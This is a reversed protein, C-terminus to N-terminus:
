VKWVSTKRSLSIVRKSSKTINEKAGKKGSPCSQGKNIQLAGVGNKNCPSRKRKVSNGHLVHSIRTAHTRSSDPGFLTRGFCTRNLIGFDASAGFAAFTPSSPHTYM